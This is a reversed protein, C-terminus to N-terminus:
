HAPTVLMYTYLKRTGRPQPPETRTGDRVLHRSRRGQGGGDTKEGGGERARRRQEARQERREREAKDAKFKDRLAKLERAKVKASKYNDANWRDAPVKFRVGRKSRPRDEDDDEEGEGEEKDAKEDDSVVRPSLKESPREIDRLKISALSNAVPTSSNSHAGLSRILVAVGKDTLNTCGTLDLNTLTKSIGSQHFVSFDTDFLQECGVMAMTHMVKNHKCFALLSAKSILQCGSARLIELKPCGVAISKLGADEM